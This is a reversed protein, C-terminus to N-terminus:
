ICIMVKSGFSQHYETVFDDNEKGKCSVGLLHKRHGIRFSEKINQM